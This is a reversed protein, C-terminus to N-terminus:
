SPEGKGADILHSDASLAAMARSTRSKVTGLAVDLVEATQQETLDAFFRLVIVSRQEVPLRLLAGRLLDTDGFHDASDASIPSAAAPLQETPAERHWFRRRTDIHRNILVRHVYADPDAAKAIRDWRLYCRALADQVVDEASHEDAGLLVVTRVLRPWSAAVYEDFSEM